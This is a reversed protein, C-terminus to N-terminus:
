EAYTLIKEFHPRCEDLLPKLKTPFKDTKPRYKQFGTSNHTGTYWHPAWVGDEERAGKEWSLMVQDFQLGAAECIRGLEREPNELIARSEVVVFPAGMGELEAILEIHAEYGIDSISPSEIVKDFSPLMDKPDRTLIVNVVGKMFSKDLGLIHHTMNKFFVETTEKPFDGLMFDVVKGGDNEMTKLIVEQEPHRLRNEEDVNNLYHAYLPEDFVKCGPRQAFSYMLATSINRPGSWLCIRVPNSM